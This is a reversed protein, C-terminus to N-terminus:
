WRIIGQSQSTELAAKPNAVEFKNNKNGVRKRRKGTQM